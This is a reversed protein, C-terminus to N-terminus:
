SIMVNATSTVGTADAAISIEMGTLLAVGVTNNPFIIELSGDEIAHVIKRSAVENSAIGVFTGSHIPFAQIDKRNEDLIIM